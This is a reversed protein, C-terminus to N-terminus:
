LLPICRPFMLYISSVFLHCQQWGELATNLLAKGFLKNIPKFLRRGAKYNLKRVMVGGAVPKKKEMGEPREGGKTEM